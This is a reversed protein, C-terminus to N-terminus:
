KKRESEKVGKFGNDRDIIEELWVRIENPLRDVNAENCLAPSGNEDEINVWNVLAYKIKLRTATGSNYLIRLKAGDREVVSLSDEIEGGERSTLRKLIFKPRKDEALDEQPYVVEYTTKTDILKM